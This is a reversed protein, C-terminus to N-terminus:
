GRTGFIAMKMKFHHLLTNEMLPNRATYVGLAILPTIQTIGLGFVQTKLIHDVRSKLDPMKMELGVILRKTIERLFRRIKFMSGFIDNENMWIIKM